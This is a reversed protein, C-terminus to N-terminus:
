RRFRSSPAGFYKFHAAKKLIDFSGADIDGGHTVLLAAQVTGSIRERRPPNYTATAPITITAQTDSDRTLNTNDLSIENNWGNPPTQEAIFSQVFADSEATTGIPGTGAAIFTDNILTIIITAGTDRILTWDADVVTGALTTTPTIPGGGLFGRSVIGSPSGVLSGNGIGQTIILGISM